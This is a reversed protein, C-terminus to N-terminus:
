QIYASAKASANRFQLKSRPRGGWAASHYCPSVAVAPAVAQCGTWGRAICSSHFDNLLPQEELVDATLERRQRLGKLRFCCGLLCAQFERLPLASRNPYAHDPDLLLRDTLSNRSRHLDEEEAM